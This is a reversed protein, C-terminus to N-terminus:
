DRCSFYLIQRQEAAKQLLREAAEKRQPDLNVFPDDLVMPLTTETLLAGVALRFAFYVADQTGASFASLPYTGEKTSIQIEYQDSLILTEYKGDTLACLYAGASACLQPAFHTNMEENAEKLWLLAQKAAALAHIWDKETKAFEDIKKQLAERQEWLAALDKIDLCDKQQQLQRLEEEAATLEQQVQPATEELLSAGEALRRLDEEKQGNLLVQQSLSENKRTLSMEYVGWQIQMEKVEHPTLLRHKQKLQELQAATAEAQEQLAQVKLTAQEKQAAQADRRALVQHYQEWKELLSAADMAGNMRCIRDRKARELLFLLAGLTMLIAGLIWLWPTQLILGAPLAIIGPILLGLALAKQAKGGEQIQRIQPASLAHFGFQAVQENLLEWGAIAAKEEERAAREEQKATEHAAFAAEMVRLDAPSVAPAELPAEKQKQLNELQRLKKLADSGQAAKLRAKLEEIRRLLHARAEELRDWQEKRHLQEDWQRELEQLHSRKEELERQLDLLHGQTRTRHMYRTHEKNLYEEAQLYSINEDGTAALNKLATDLGDTRAFLLDGQTICFTRLFTEGDLKLFHPGPQEKNALSLEEGTDPSFVKRKEMGKHPRLREIQWRKGGEEFLLRGSLPEGSWPLYTKLRKAEYGYFMYYIFYILTTKGFENPHIYANFGEGPTLTFDKFKGFAGIELKLLKM